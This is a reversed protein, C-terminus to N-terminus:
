RPWHHWSARKSGRRPLKTQGFRPPPNLMRGPDRVRAMVKRGDHHGEPRESCEPQAEDRKRHGVHRYAGDVPRFPRALEEAGAVECHPERIGPAEGVPKGMPNVAFYIWSLMQCSVALAMAMSAPVVKLVSRRPPSVMPAESELKPVVICIFPRSVLCNRLTSGVFSPDFSLIGEAM